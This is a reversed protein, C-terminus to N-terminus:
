QLFIHTERTMYQVDLRYLLLGGVYTRINAYRELMHVEVMPIFGMSYIIFTLSLTHKHSYLDYNVTAYTRINPRPGTLGHLCGSLIPKAQDIVLPFREM